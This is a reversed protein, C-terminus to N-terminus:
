EEVVDVGTIEFRAGGAESGTAAVAWGHAEAIEEVISLGFGTGAEATTFGARFVEDRESEPIGSGDDEVYFGARRELTGVTVTIGGSEGAATAHEAANRFLNEFLQTLRTRDAAITASGEVTLGLDGTELTTWTEEVVARLSLPEREDIDRGERALALLDALLRDMRDLARRCREFHAEDGTSEALELSASLTNLPNRLDHGVLSAFQDLQENKRELAEERRTRETIDTSIGCVAVPEGGDFIPMKVSIYTRVEGGRCAAEEVEIPGGTQLARLDNERVERAYEASQLGFDTQGLIEERDMGLVEEYRSNVLTYRGELDKVYVIASTNEIIQKAQRLERERQDREIMTEKRTLASAIINGSVELLDITDASWPEQSEQWDLGIFGVLTGAQTLPITVLSEVGAAALTERLTAAEPPLESVAPVTVPDLSELQRMYWSFQEPPIDRRESQRSSVGEACWEHSTSMATGDDALRFVYSRDAGEFAGITALAEEIRDDIDDVGANILSSSIDLIVNKLREREKRETIDHVTGRVRVIESNDTQPDGVCRIWRTEDDATILRVQVDYPEGDEIATWIADRFAPLDDPHYFERLQDLSLEFSPSIGHIDYVKETWVLEDREVDYEWAGVDAITQAKRFLDNQRELRQEARYRGVANEIRNALVTFQEPSSEKQLYDTVGASIAESAIEESGKGTFLVFPLTPHTERVTELFAIGDQEPMEYDSVICDFERAELRELGAAASSATEVSFGDHKGALFTQTLDAFEPDDDVHLVRIGSDM